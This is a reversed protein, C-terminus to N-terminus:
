GKIGGVNVGEMIYKQFCLFMIIPPVVVFILVMMLEDPPLLQKLTYTRISITQLKNDSLLLYPWMFEGWSGNFGFIAVTMFIPKSLPLIIKRFIKLEGAGDLRAAELYTMSIGDFFSKFLMTSFAHTGAMLWLPLYSNLLGANVFTIYLPVMAMNAPLLISWFVITQVISGGKPKLRSLVYGAMGCFLLEVLLKGLTVIITNIYARGLSSSKWVTSLKSLKIEKPFITPPIQLFEKTEKFASLLMWAIPLLIIAVLFLCVVTMFFKAIRLKWARAETTLIVGTGGEHNKKAM